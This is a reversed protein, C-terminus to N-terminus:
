NITVSNTNVSGGPSTIAITSTGVTANAPIRVTISTASTVTYDTVAVGNITMSTIAGLNTGSITALNSRKVTQAGSTVTPKVNTSSASYSPSAISGGPTTVTFTGTSLGSPISLLIQNTAIVRFAVTKSGRIVATTAGLNTGTLTIATGPGGSSASMTISGPASIVSTVTISAGNATGGPTTVSVVGTAATATNFIISTPSIVTFKTSATTSTGIKVATAGWLNTGTITLATGRSTTAASVSSIVPLANGSVTATGPAYGTRSTAVQLTAAGATVGSVTIPLTSGVATGPTATGAGAILTPTFSYLANYNTVNVTFGTATVVPTSFTPTLATGVPTLPASAGSVAGTGVTNVAADKFYYPTGNTLGTVTCTGATTITTCTGAAVDSYTGGATTSQTVKYSTIASGGSSTPATITLTVQNNGAVGTPAAPATPVTAPAGCSPFKFSVIRTAWNFKGSAPLYETSAWFTCDDAPDAVIVSYDGWRTLGGTQSGLGSHVISEAQTMVGLTDSALRGVTAISPFRTASSISYVLAINGSKDSTISPMWRHVSDQGDFTGQQYITPKSTATPVADALEYWRIASFKNSTVSHTALLSAKGEINRYVYRYMLRDAMSDLKNNTGSQTICVGGNCAQSYNSVPISQPGTVTLVAPNASWDTTLRFSKLSSTTGLELGYAPTGVPPPTTGEVGAVLISYDNIVSLTQCAQRASNGLLMAAQDYACIIPGSYFTGSPGFGNFTTYYAGPWVALKPYDPFVSYDFSYRNWTGLLNSTTSVAVCQLYPVSSGDAGSVAFQSVVWRDNLRDYVATADGDNTTECLGGFGSFISNTPRSSLIVNGSKDWAQMDVNTVQLVQTRSVDLSTDPPAYFGAGVGDWSNSTAPMSKAAVSKVGQIKSQSLLDETAQPGKIKPATANRKEEDGGGKGEREPADMETESRDSELNPSFTPKAIMGKLPASVDHHSMQGLVPKNSNPNKSFGIAGVAILIVGVFLSTGVIRFKRSQMSWIRESSKPM